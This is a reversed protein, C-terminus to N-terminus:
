FFKRMIDQTRIGFKMERKTKLKVGIKKSYKIERPIVGFDCPMNRRVILASLCM